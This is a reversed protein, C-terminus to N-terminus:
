NSIGLAPHRPIIIPATPISCICICSVAHRHTHVYDHNETKPYRKSVSIPAASRPDSTTQPRSPLFTTYPSTPTSSLYSTIGANSISTLTIFAVARDCRGTAVHLQFALRFRIISLM